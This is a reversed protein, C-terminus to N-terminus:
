EGSGGSSGGLNSLDGGLGLNGLGLDGLGDAGGGGQARAVPLLCSIQCSILLITMFAVSKCCNLRLNRLAFVNHEQQCQQRRADQRRENTRSQPRSVRRIARKTTITMKAHYIAHASRNPNNNNSITTTTTTASSISPNVVGLKKRRLDVLIRQERKSTATM